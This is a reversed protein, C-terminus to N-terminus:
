TWYRVIVIGSGGNGASGPASTSRQGGAGTNARGNLTDAGDRGRGNPVAPPGWASAPAGGYGFRGRPRTAESNTPIVTYNGVSLPAGAAMKHNNASLGYKGQTINSLAPTPLPIIAAKVGDSGGNVPVFTNPFTPLLPGPINGTSGGGGDVFLTNAPIPPATSGFASTGGTTSLATPTEGTGGAGVTVPVPASVPVMEMRIGGGGGGGGISPYTPPFLGPNPASVLRSGGGGGGVVIVQVFNVNPPRTWTGPATFVDERPQRTGIGEYAAQVIPFNSADRITM